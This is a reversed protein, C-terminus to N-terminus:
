ELYPTLIRLSYDYTPLLAAAVPGARVLTFTFGRYLRAVGGEALLRRLCAVASPSRVNSAREAQMVSKVADAPYVVSWGVTGACAGSVMRTTVPINGEAAGDSLFRKTGVYTMMYLGRFGEMVAHIPFGRYFGRVGQHRYLERGREFLGGGGIQQQIKVRQQPCTFPSIALGGLTGGIFVHPLSAGTVKGDPSLHRAVNEYTGFNVCQVGGATLTPAMAGRYLSCFRTWSTGSLGGTSGVQARVKLTDLPYGVLLGVVGAVTGSAFGLLTFGRDGKRAVGPVAAAAAAGPVPGANGPHLKVGQPVTGRFGIGTTSHTTNLSDM